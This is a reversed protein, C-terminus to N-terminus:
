ALVQNYFFNATEQTADAPSALSHEEARALVAIQSRNISLQVQSHSEVSPELSWHIRNEDKKQFNIARACPKEQGM